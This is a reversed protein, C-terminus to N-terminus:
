DLRSMLASLAAYRRELSRKKSVLTAKTPGGRIIANDLRILEANLSDMEAAISARKKEKVAIEGEAAAKEKAAENALEDWSSLGGSGGAVEGASVEEELDDPHYGLMEQFEPELTALDMSGSGSDHLFSVTKTDVSRIKVGQYVKGSVTRIEAISLGPAKERLSVRYSKKYLEFENKIEELAKAAAKGEEDLRKIEAELELKSAEARTKEAELEGRLKEVESQHEKGAVELEREAREARKVAQEHEDKPVCGPAGVFVALLAAATGCKRLKESYRFLRM